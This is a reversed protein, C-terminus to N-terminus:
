LSVQESRPLLRDMGNASVRPPLLFLGSEPTSAVNAIFAPWCCSITHTHLASPTAKTIGITERSSAKTKRAIGPCLKDQELVRLNREVEGAFRANSPKGPSQANPGIPVEAGALRCERAETLALV